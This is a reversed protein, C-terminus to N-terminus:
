SDGGPASIERKEDEAEEWRPLDRPSPGTLLHGYPDFRSGHCPCDWSREAGNWTVIGGLHPCVASCTHRVGARDVYVALRQLGRQIVEGSGPTIPTSARQSPRLWQAYSKAVKANERLYERIAALSHPKRAPDYLAEWENKRGLILDTILHGALAAHTMGNGSDGTVIYSSRHLGPNRGIFALGDAPELIQGSWAARVEGVSPIHSRAWEELKLWRKAPLADHGVRHDEGGVLLMDTGVWRMYHYPDHTDWFLARGLRSQPVGLGVVYSRYSAQKTHIAFVDHIPVNTAVVLHRASLTSGDALHVRAPEGRDVHVVQHGTAIRGGMRRVAAALGNLYAMPEFQAQNAYRLSPGTRFPLPASEVREVHLGARQAARFEREIIEAPEDAYTYLYGDLREFDCAIGEREVIEAISEIAARHSARALKAGAEGHAQELLYYRDDLADALHATTRGTEGSGIAAKDIVLVSIGARLLQYAVSLGAMGAGLVLVEASPGAVSEARGEETRATWCSITEGNRDHDDYM